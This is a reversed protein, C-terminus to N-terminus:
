SVVDYGADRVAEALADRTVSSRAEVVARGIEVDASTVGDIGRLAEDVARVCHDCGMGEIELEIQSTTETTM